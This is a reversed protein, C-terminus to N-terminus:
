FSFKKLILEGNWVGFGFSEYFVYIGTDDVAIDAYGGKPDIRLLKEWTEAQDSSKYITLDARAMGSACNVFYLDDGWAITSAMCMPDKLSDERWTKEVTTLAEDVLVMARNHPMDNNRCNFLIRGDSLQTAIPENIGMGEPTKILIGPKWTAGHDDSVVCGVHWGNKTVWFPAILRGDSAVLGHGPGTGIDAYGPLMERVVDSVEVPVSFSAGRDESVCYFVRFYDKCFFLHLLEGDAILVPNHWTIVDKGRELTEEPLLLNPYVPEGFTKGGDTSTRVTLYIEASDGGAGRRSEYAIVVTGDDMVVIAPIRYSTFDNEYGTAVVSFQSNHGSIVVTSFEEKLAVEEKTKSEDSAQAGEAGASMPVGVLLMLAMLAAIFRKGKLYAGM